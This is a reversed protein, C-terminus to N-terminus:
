PWGAPVLDLVTYLQQSPESGLTVLLTKLVILQTYVGVFQIEHLTVTDNNRCADIIQM